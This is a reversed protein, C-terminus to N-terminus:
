DAASAPDAAVRALLPRSAASALRVGLLGAVVTALLLVAGSLDIGGGGLGLRTLPAAVVVGTVMSGVVLLLLPVQTTLVRARDLVELPVGVMALQRYTRRQDLVAAAATIGASAMAVAFSAALVLVSATRFDRVFADADLDVDQGTAAISAPAVVAVRTRVRDLEAARREPPGTVTIAISAAARDGTLDSTRLLQLAGSAADPTPDGVQAGTGALDARLRQAVAPASAAPLAVDVTDASGWVPEAGDGGGSPFLALTGAIFGTMAVAGVTRWVGRPDDLLRRGALLPATSSSAAIVVRGLLAVVWPGVLALTAFVAAFLALLLSTSVDRKSLVLFAVVLAAFLLSRWPSIRRPTTRAAVGMPATLVGRLAVVSSGVAVVVTGLLLAILVLPPPLLDAVYWTGRGIPVRAALPAAAVAAVGGVLAGAVAATGTEAATMVVVQRPTAGALRLAALRSDRRALGLRAAAGMLVLLPVVLLVVAIQALPAYQRATSGADDTGAFGAVRTPGAYADGRRQDHWPPATMTPDDATRGVVAVLEDPSTLAEEGLTGAVQPFRDGLRRGPTSAVLDALAPSLYAQGPQPFADLGPPAPPGTAADPATAALDVVVLPRGGVASTTTRQVATADGASAAAPERWQARDARADVGSAVGVTLVLLLTATALGVVTLVQQGAARRGGARLLRWALAVEPFTASM